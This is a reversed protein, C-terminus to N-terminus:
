PYAKSMAQQLLMGDRDVEIGGFLKSNREYFDALKIAKEIDYNFDVETMTKGFQEGDKKFVTVSFHPQESQSEPDTVPPASEVESSNNKESQGAAIIANWFVENTTYYYTFNHVAVDEKGSFITASANLIKVERRLAIYECDTLKKAESAPLIASNPKTFDGYGRRANRRRPYYKLRDRKKKSVPNLYELYKVFEEATYFDRMKVLYEDTKYTETPVIIRKKWESLINEYLSDPIEDYFCLIMHCHFGCNAYPELFMFGCKLNEYNKFLYGKNKKLLGLVAKQVDNFSQRIYTGLTFACTKYPNCSELCEDKIKKFSARENEYDRCEGDVVGEDDGGIRMRYLKGDEGTILDCDGAYDADSVIESNTCNDPPEQAKVNSASNCLATETEATAKDDSWKDPSSKEAVSRRSSKKGSPSTLVGVAEEATKCRKRKGYPNPMFTKRKEFKLIGCGRYYTVVVDDRNTFPLAMVAWGDAVSIFADGNPDYLYDNERAYKKCRHILLETGQYPM